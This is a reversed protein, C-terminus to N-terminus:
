RSTAVDAPSSALAGVPVLLIGQDKLGAAFRGIQALHEPLGSAMGVARGKRRALAVLRDLNAQVATADSTADLVVDATLVKAGTTPALSAALSRASTGDDLFFVGKRATAELVPRMVRSDATVSAGLLNAIGAFGAVRSTAWELDAAVEPASEGARLSHPGLRQGSASQMPLQLLIEHGKARAAEVDAAITEGYPVFALDVAPPLSDVATRTAPRSLGMGSVFIAIQPQGAAAPVAPAAPPTAFSFHNKGRDQEDLARAVNIVLPRSGSDPVRPTDAAETGRVVRVGGEIDSQALSAHDAEPRPPLSGTPMTDIAAIASPKPVYAPISATAYPEGGHPDSLALFLGLGLGFAAAGGCGVILGVRRRPPQSEMGLPENWDM